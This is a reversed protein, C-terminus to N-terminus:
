LGLRALEDEARAVRTDCDAISHSAQPSTFGGTAASLQESWKLFLARTTVRKSGVKATPLCIANVGRTAWRFATSPAVGEMRALQTLTLREHAPAALVETVDSM